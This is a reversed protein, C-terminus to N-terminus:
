VCVCMRVDVGRVLAPLLALLHNEAGGIGAVKQVHLVRIRM